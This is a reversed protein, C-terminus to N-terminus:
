DQWASIRNLMDMEEKSLQLSLSGLNDLLQDITRPGIIPSTISPKSSLWALAMQSISAGRSEAMEAIKGLVNRARQDTLYRMARGSLSSGQGRDVELALKGKQSLFGGALPSYPMVGLGYVTCIEMLEREYEERHILNYHPQLCIFRQLRDRDSTWLAQMLRWATFNSCGIYHIYGRQTLDDLAALTEEIPTAEDPYHLQYLDIAEVGLRSLSGQVASIIHKRSLGEDNPESGMPGRVKTALVIEHRRGPNNKLWRGIIEESVGGPNGEVWRSYIDATDIFNIGAEFARDLIEVSTKEDATWGFQMTGLCLSSVKIGSLGLALYDMDM